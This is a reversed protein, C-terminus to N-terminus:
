EIKRGIGRRLPYVNKECGLDTATKKWTNYKIYLSLYSRKASYLTNHGSSIYTWADMRRKLIEIQRWEDLAMLLVM